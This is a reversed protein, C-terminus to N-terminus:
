GGVDRIDAVFGFEVCGQFLCPRIINQGQIGIKLNGFPLRNGGLHRKQAIMVRNM